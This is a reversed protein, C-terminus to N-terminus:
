RYKRATRWATWLKSFASLELRQSFKGPDDCLHSLLKEHLGGFVLLPRLSSAEDKMLAQKLQAYQQINQRCRTTLWEIFETSWEKAALAEYEINLQDLEHLPLYLRGHHIDTRLDRLTEVQRIFSGISEAAALMTPTPANSLFCVALKMLGGMCNKLYQNLEIDTEYTSHAIDQATSLILPELVSFDIDARGHAQMARTAPHQANGKTLRDIEERWWQLRIHAVDHPANATDHLESELLFLAAIVDHQQKPTYLWAYHRMSGEPIARALLSADLTM